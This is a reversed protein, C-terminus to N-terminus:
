LAADLTMQRIAAAEAEYDFDADVKNARIALRWFTQPTIKNALYLDKFLSFDAALGFDHPMSVIGSRGPFGGLAATHELLSQISGLDSRIWAELTSHARIGHLGVETATINGTPRNFLPDLCGQRIAAETREVDKALAEINTGAVQHIAGSGNENHIFIVDGQETFGTESQSPDVGSLVFYPMSCKRTLEDLESMKRWLAAQEDAADLFPPSCRFPETWDTYFPVLPIDTPPPGAIPDIKTWETVARWGNEGREYIKFHVARRDDGEEASLDGARYVRITEKTTQDDYSNPDDHLTSAKAGALRLKCELLRVRGHEYAWTWHHMDDPRVRVWYPRNQHSATSPLDVLVFELGEFLKGLFVRRFFATLSAGAGDINHQWGHVRRSGQLPEPWGDITAEQRFPLAAAGEISRKWVNRLRSRKVRDAYITRHVGGSERLEMEGPGPWMWHKSTEADKRMADVGEVLAAPLRRREKDKSYESRPTSVDAM